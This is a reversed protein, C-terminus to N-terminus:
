AYLLYDKINQLLPGDLRRKSGNTSSVFYEDSEQPVQAHSSQETHVQSAQQLPVHTAQQISALSAQQLPVHSAHQLPAISSQQLPVHSTHQMPPLQILGFTDDRVNRRRWEYVMDRFEAGNMTFPADNGCVIEFTYGVHSPVYTTRTQINPQTIQPVVQYSLQHPQQQVPVFQAMDHYGQTAHPPPSIYEYQPVQQVPQKKRSPRATDKKTVGGKPTASKSTDPRSTRAKKEPPQNSVQDYCDM